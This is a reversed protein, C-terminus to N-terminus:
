FSTFLHILEISFIWVAQAQSPKAFTLGLKDDEFHEYHKEDMRMPKYVIIDYM